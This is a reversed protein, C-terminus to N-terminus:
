TSIKPLGDVKCTSEEILWQIFESRSEYMTRVDMMFLEKKHFNVMPNLLARIDHLIKIDFRYNPNNEFVDHSFKNRYSYILKLGGNLLTLLQSENSLKGTLFRKLLNYKKEWKLERVNFIQRCIDSPFMRNIIAEFTAQAVVIAEFYLCRDLLFAIRYIAKEIQSDSLNKIPEFIPIQENSVQGLFLM